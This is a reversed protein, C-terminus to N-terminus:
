SDFSLYLRGWNDSIIDANCWAISMDLPPPTALRMLSYIQRTKGKPPEFGGGQVM